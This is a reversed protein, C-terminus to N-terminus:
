SNSTRSIELGENLERFREEVSKETDGRDSQRGELASLSREFERLRRELWADVPRTELRAVTEQLKTIAEIAGGANLAPSASAQADSEDAYRLFTAELM